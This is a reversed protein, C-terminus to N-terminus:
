HRSEWDVTVVTLPETIGKAELQREEDVAFEQSGDELTTATILVEGGDAAAMVRAAVHVGRGGVDGGRDNVEDAHVGIRVQPAYGHETRHAKLRRQIECACGIAAEPRDFTAFIGDGEHKVETGGHDAVCARLVRDHWALLAEWAEDGLAEVLKTSGVIDTFLMTVATRQSNQRLADLSRRMREAEFQAGIKAFVAMAAEADTEAAERDGAELRARALEAHALAGNYPANTQGWLRRAERLHPIASAADGAAMAVRGAATEYEARLGTTECADTLEGLEALKAEAFGLDGAEIAARIGAPLIQARGGSLRSGGTVSLRDRALALAAAPRGEDLRLLILGPLADGGLDIAEAFAAAAGELDGQRRKIEGLEHMGDPAFRPMGALLDETAAEVEVTAAEYDGRLNLSEGRHLRCLGPFYGISQRKCWRVAADSWESATEVDYRHRCATINGCIVVGSTWLELNGALAGAAAQDLLAAGESFGGALQRARGTSMMALAELDRDDLRKAMEAMEAAASEAGEADGQELALEAQCFLIMGAAHSDRQTGLLETARGLNGGALALDNRQFYEIALKVAIRGAEAREGAREFEEGARELAELMEGYRRTWRATEALKELEPGSLPGSADAERLLEYAGEWDRAAVADDWGGRTPEAGKRM